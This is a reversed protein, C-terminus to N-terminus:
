ADVADDAPVEVVRREIGILDGPLGVDRGTVQVGYELIGVECRHLQDLLQAQLLGVISKMIRCQGPRMDLIDHQCYTVNPGVLEGPIEPLDEADRGCLYTLESVLPGRM